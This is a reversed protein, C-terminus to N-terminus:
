RQHDGGLSSASPSSPHGLEKRGDNHRWRGARGVSGPCCHRCCSIKYRSPIFTNTKITLHSENSVLHPSNTQYFTDLCQGSEDRTNNVWTITWAPALYFHTRVSIVSSEWRKGSLGCGGSLLGPLIWSAWVSLAKPWCLRLCVLSLSAQWFQWLETARTQKQWSCEWVGKIM